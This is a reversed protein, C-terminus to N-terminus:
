NDQLVLQHTKATTLATDYEDNEILYKIQRGYVGGKSNIYKFVADAAPAIESYGPAAPGTLPTTTGLVIQHATVGPTSVTGGGGGTTTPAAGGSGCAAAVLALAGLLAGLAFRRSRPRKWENM